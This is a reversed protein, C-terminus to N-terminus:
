SRTRFNKEPKAEAERILLTKGHCQSFDQAVFLQALTFERDGGIRNIQGV